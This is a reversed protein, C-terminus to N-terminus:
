TTPGELLAASVWSGSVSVPTAMFEPEADEPRSKFPSGVPSALTFTPFHMCVYVYTCVRV